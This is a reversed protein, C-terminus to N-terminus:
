GKYPKDLYVKARKRSQEYDKMKLVKKYVQVAQSRKDQADLIMGLKIEAEIWFGTEEEKDVVESAEICKRMYKEASGYEKRRMLAWGIDFLAERATLNDYGAKKNMHKVLIDRWTAEMNKWDGLRIFCRGVYRHFYPNNPFRKYLDSAVKYAKDADPDFSFYLQMLAVDAEVGAYRANKSCAELQLVGLEKDGKPLFSLITKTAPYKEPIAVTFYNFLGMGLMIDHNDPAIEICKLLIKYASYGDRGSQLWKQNEGYFRGRYGLIGGKFFLATIDNPNDDLIKDCVKITKDVRDLFPKNYYDTFRYVTLKWYYVMADLFYGVPHKPNINIVKNFCVEAQEFQCNYIFTKGVQVLSDAQPTMISWQSQASTYFCILLGISLILKKM